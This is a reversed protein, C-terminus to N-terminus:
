AAAPREAPLRACSGVRVRGADAVEAPASAPLRYGGGVRIRNADAAETSIHHPLVIKTM